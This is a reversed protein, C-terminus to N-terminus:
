CFHTSPKPLHASFPNCAICITRKIQPASFLAAVILRGIRPIQNIGWVAPSPILIFSSLQMLLVLPAILTHFLLEEESHESM